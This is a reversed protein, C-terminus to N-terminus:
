GTVGGSVWESVLRETRQWICMTSHADPKPWQAQSKTCWSQAQWEVVGRSAKAVSADMRHIHFVRSNTLCLRHRPLTADVPLACDDAVILVKVKIGEAKAKAFSCVHAFLVSSIRTSDVVHM